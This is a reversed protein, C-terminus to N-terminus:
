RNKIRGNIRQELLKKMKELVSPAFNKSHNLVDRHNVDEVYSAYDMGAVIVLAYETSAFERALSKAFNLGVEEGKPSETDFKEGREGTEFKEGVIIGRKLVVYGTSNRLNGTQDEYTRHEKAYNVIEMGARNLYYITDNDFDELLQNIQGNIANWDFNAKVGM